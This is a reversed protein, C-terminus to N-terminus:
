ARRTAAACSRRQRCGSALPRAYRALRRWGTRRRLLRIRGGLGAGRRRASRSRRRPRRDRRRRAGTACDRAIDAFRTEGAATVQSRSAWRRSRTRMAPPSSSAVGCTEPRATGRRCAGASRDRGGRPVTVGAVIVRGRARAKLLAADVRRALREYAAPGFGTEVPAPRGAGARGSRLRARLRGAM